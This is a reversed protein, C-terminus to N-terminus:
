WILLIIDQVRSIKELVVYILASGRCCGRVLGETPTLLLWSNSTTPSHRLTSWGLRELPEAESYTTVLWTLQRRWINKMKLASTVIKMTGWLAKRLGIKHNERAKRYCKYVECNLEYSWEFHQSYNCKQRYSTASTKHQTAM